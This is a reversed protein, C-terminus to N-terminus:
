IRLTSFLKLSFVLFLLFAFALKLSWTSVLFLSLSFFFFLIIRGPISQYRGTRLAHRRIWTDTGNQTRSKWASVGLPDKWLAKRAWTRPAPSTHANRISLSSTYQHPQIDFSYLAFFFFFCHLGPFAVGCQRGLFAGKGKFCPTRLSWLGFTPVTNSFCYSFYVEWWSSTTTTLSKSLKTWCISSEFDLGKSNSDGTSDSESGGKEFQPWPVSSHEEFTGFHKSAPKSAARPLMSTAPMTTRVRHSWPCSANILAWIPGSSSCVGATSLKNVRPLPPSLCLRGLPLQLSVLFLELLTPSSRSGPYQPSFSTPTLHFCVRNNDTLETTTATTCTRAM